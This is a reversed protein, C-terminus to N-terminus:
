YRRIKDGLSGKKIKDMNKIRKIWADRDINLFSENGNVYQKICDLPVGYNFNQTGVFGGANVAVLEGNSNIVPSGSSGGLTSLSYMMRGTSLQTIEGSFIQPNAIEDPTSIDSVGYNYGIYHINQGVKYSVDEKCDFTIPIIDAPTKRSITLIALDSKKSRSVLKCSNECEVNSGSYLFSYKNYNEVQLTSWDMQNLEDLRKQFVERERNLVYWKKLAEDHKQRDYDPSFLDTLNPNDIIGKQVLIQKDFEEVQSTYYYLLILQVSRRLEAIHEKEDRNNAFDDDVVHRNTMIRGNDDFFFGTGQSIEWVSDPFEFERLIQKAPELEFRGSLSFYIVKGFQEGRVVPLTVKYCHRNIILVVSKHYKEYLYESTKDNSGFVLLATIITGFVIITIFSKNKIISNWTKPKNDKMFSFLSVLLSIVVLGLLGWLLYAMYQDIGDIVGSLNYKKDLGLQKLLKTILYAWVKNNALLTCIRLEIFHFIYYAM